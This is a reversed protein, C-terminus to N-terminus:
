WAYPEARHPTGPRRGTFTCGNFSFGALFSLVAVIGVILILPVDSRWPPRQASM